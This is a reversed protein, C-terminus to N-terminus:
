GLRRERERRVDVPLLTTVERLPSGDDPRIKLATGGSRLQWADLCVGELSQGRRTVVRVWAGIL